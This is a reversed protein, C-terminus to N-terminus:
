TERLVLRKIKPSLTKAAGVAKALRDVVTAPLPNLPQVSKGAIGHILQDRPWPQASSCDILSDQDLDPCDRRTLEVLVEPPRCARRAEIKTTATAVVLVQDSRPDLNLIFFFRRKRGETGFQYEMRFAGGRVLVQEEIVKTPLAKWIM